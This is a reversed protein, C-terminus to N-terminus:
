DGTTRVGSALVGEGLRIEASYFRGCAVSSISLSCSGAIRHRDDPWMWSKGSCSSGHFQAVFPASFFEAMQFQRQGGESQLEIGELQPCMFNQERNFFGYCFIRSDIATGRM